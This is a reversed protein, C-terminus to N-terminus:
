ESERCCQYRHSRTASHHLLQVHRRGRWSVWAWSSAWAWSSSYSSAWSSAWAWAWSSSYSSVRPPLLRQGAEAVRADLLDVARGAGVAARGSHGVVRATVAAHVEVEVEVQVGVRGSIALVARRKGGRLAPRLLLLLPMILVLIRNEPLQPRHGGRAQLEVVCDCDCFIVLRHQAVSKLLLMVHCVVMYM